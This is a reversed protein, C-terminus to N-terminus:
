VVIGYGKPLNGYLTSHGGCKLHVLGEATLEFDNYLELRLTNNGNGKVRGLEVSSLAKCRHCQVLLPHYRWCRLDEKRGLGFEEKLRELVANM